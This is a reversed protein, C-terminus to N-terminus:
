PRVGSVDGLFKVAVKTRAQWRGSCDGVSASAASTAGTIARDTAVTVARSDSRYIQWRCSRHDICSWGQWILAADDSTAVLRAENLIAVYVDFLTDGLRIGEVEASIREGKKAEVVYYDVDENQVIGEVTVNNAVVQPQKFDSKPEVEM